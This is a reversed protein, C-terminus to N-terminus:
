QQPPTKNQRLTNTSHGYNQVYQELENQLFAIRQQLYIIQQKLSQITNELDSRVDNSLLGKLNNEHSIKCEILEHKHQESLYSLKRELQEKKLTLTHFSKELNKMCSDFQSKIENKEKICQDNLSNFQKDYFSKIKNQEDKLVQIMKQQDNIISQQKVNREQFE